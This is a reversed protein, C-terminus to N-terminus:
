GGSGFTVGGRNTTTSGSDAAMTKEPDIATRGGSGFTVGGDLRPHTPALQPDTLSGGSCATSVLGFAFLAAIVTRRQISSM